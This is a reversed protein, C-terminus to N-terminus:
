LQFRGKLANYNQLIESASLVRNYIQLFSFQGTSNENIIYGGIKIGDPGYSGNANSDLLIGNIYYNYLDNTIHGTGAYIRWNTDSVASQTSVFGGAFYNNSRNSWHGLM